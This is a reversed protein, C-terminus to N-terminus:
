GPYMYLQIKTYLLCIGNYKELFNELIESYALIGVKRLVAIQFFIVVLNVEFNQASFMYFTLWLCHSYEIKPSFKPWMQSRITMDFMTMVFM